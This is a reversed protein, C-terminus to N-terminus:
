TEEPELAELDLELDELDELDDERNLKEMNIESTVLEGTDLLTEQPGAGAAPEETDQAPAAEEGADEIALDDLDLSIEEEENTADLSLDDPEIALVDEEEEVVAPAPDIETETGEPAAAALEEFDLETEDGALDDLDLSVIDEEEPAAGGAGPADEQDLMLGELDGSVEEDGREEPFHIGAEPTAEIQMELSQTDKFTEEMAEIVQSDETSFEAEPSGFMEGDVRIGANSDMAEGTLAGLLEPPEPKFGPLNLRRQENSIDKNCKPCVQHHDFSIYSCKPCKM